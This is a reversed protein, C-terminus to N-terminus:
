ESHKSKLIMDYVFERDLYEEAKLPEDKLMLLEYLLYLTRQIVIRALEEDCTKHTGKNVLSWLADIETKLRMYLDSSEGLAEKIFQILRNKTKERGLPRGDVLEETPPYLLDATKEILRRCSVSMQSYQEVVVATCFAHSISWFQDAIEPEADSLRHLVSDPFDDLITSCQKKWEAIRKAYPLNDYKDFVTFQGGLDEYGITFGLPLAFRSIDDSATEIDGQYFINIRNKLIRFRPSLKQTFLAWHSGCSDDVEIAGRYAENRWLADSIASADTKTISELCFIWAIQKRNMWNEFDSCLSQWMDTRPFLMSQLLEPKERIMEYPLLLDGIFIKSDLNRNKTHPFFISYAVNGYYDSIMLLRDIDFFFAVKM